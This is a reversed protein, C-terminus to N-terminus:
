EPRQAQDERVVRLGSQAAAPREGRPARAVGADDAQAEQRATAKSVVAITLGAALASLVTAGARLADIRQRDAITTADGQGLWAALLALVALGLVVWWVRVLRRLAPDAGHGWLASRGLASLNGRVVLAWRLVLVLAVALAALELLAAVTVLQDAALLGDVLVRGDRLQGAVVIRRVDAGVAVLCTGVKVYLSLIAATSRPAPSSYTAPM